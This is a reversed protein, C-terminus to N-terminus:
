LKVSVFTGDQAEVHVIELGKSEQLGDLCEEALMRLTDKTILGRYSEPANVRMRELVSDPLLKIAVGVLPLPVPLSFRFEKTRIRVKM